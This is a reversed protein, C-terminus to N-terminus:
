HVMLYCKQRHKYNEAGRDAGDVFVRGVGAGGTAAGLVAIPGSGALRAAGFAIAAQSGSRGAFLARSIMRRRPCGAYGTRVALETGAEVEGAEGAM